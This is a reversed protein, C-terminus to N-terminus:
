KETINFQDLIPKIANILTEESWPKAIFTDLLKSEILDNVKSSNAQGSLMIFKLNPYKRKLAKILDAGNLEPMQYDVILFIIDIDEMILNDIEKIAENPNTFFELRACEMDFRKRIQFNLMQLILPEDDICIIAYNIKNDKM